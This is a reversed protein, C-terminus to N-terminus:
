QSKNNSCDKSLFLLLRVVVFFLLLLTLCSFQSDTHAVKFTDISHTSQNVHLYAAPHTLDDSGQQFKRRLPFSLFPHACKSMVFTSAM